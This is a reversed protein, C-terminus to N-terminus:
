ISQIRRLSLLTTRAAADEAGTCRYPAQRRGAFQRLYLPNKYLVSSICNAAAVEIDHDLLRDMCQQPHRKPHTVLAFFSPKVGLAALCTPDILDANELIRIAEFCLEQHDAVRELARDFSGLAAVAAAPHIRSNFSFENYIDFGLERKQRLPHQSWWLLQEYLDTNNTLVCGGEGAALSKQSNFSLVVADAMCSAPAGDRRAGFAQAADAIYWLGLDDAVRRLGATDSPYGYLDVAFIARTKPTVLHEKICSPDLTLTDTDVDTFIARNGLLLWPTISGGFNLPSTIFDAERLDLALGLSFLAATASAMCIAHKMGYFAALRHELEAVAGVGVFHDLNHRADDALMSFKQGTIYGAVAKSM